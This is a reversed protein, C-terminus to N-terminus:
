ARKGGGKVKSGKGRSQAVKAMAKGKAKQKPMAGGQKRSRKSQPQRKPAAAAVQKFTHKKLASLSLQARQARRLLETATSTAGGAGAARAAMNDDDDDDANDDGFGYAVTTVTVLNDKSDFEQEDTSKAVLSRDVSLGASALQAGRQQVM